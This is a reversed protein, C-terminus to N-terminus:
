SEGMAQKRSLMQATKNIKDFLKELWKGGGSNVDSGTSQPHTAINLHSTVSVPKAELEGLQTHIEDIPPQASPNPMIFGGLTEHVEPYSPEVGAPRETPIPSSTDITIQPEQVGATPPQNVGGVQSPQNDPQDPNM